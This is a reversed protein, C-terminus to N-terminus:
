SYRWAIISGAFCILSVSIGLLPISFWYLKALVLLGVLTALGVFLLYTSEFLLSPHSLALYGFILGFLIAGVSHSANFGVWAKWMTTESSLVPSTNEMASRVEANRPLFKPGAFTYVLHVFGLTLIIAASAGMLIKAIM